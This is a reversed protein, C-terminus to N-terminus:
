KHIVESSFFAFFIGKIQLKDTMNTYITSRDVSATNIVTTQHTFFAVRETKPTPKLSGYKTM